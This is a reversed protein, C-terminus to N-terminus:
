CLMCLVVVFLYGLLYVVFSVSSRWWIGMAQHMFWHKNKPCSVCIFMTKVLFSNSEWDSLWDKAEHRNVCSPIVILIILMILSLSVVFESKNIIIVVALIAIYIISLNNDSNVYFCKKKREKKFASAPFGLLIRNKLSVPILVQWSEQTHGRFFLNRM